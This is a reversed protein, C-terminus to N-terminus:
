KFCGKRSAREGGEDEGGPQSTAKHNFHRGNELSVTSM